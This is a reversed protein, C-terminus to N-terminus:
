VHMVELMPSDAPEDNFLRDNQSMFARADDGGDACVNRSQFFSIPYGDLRADCTSTTWRAFLPAVIEARIHM